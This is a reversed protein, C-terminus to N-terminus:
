PRWGLTVAAWRGPMPVGDFEVFSRDLANSVDVGLTLGLGIPREIRLDVLAYSGRSQPVRFRGAVTARLQAPLRVAATVSAEFRPHALAYRSRALDADIESRLWATGFRVQEVVGGPRAAFGFELGTTIARAHNVARDVGTDDRLYDILGRADRRFVAGDALVGGLPVTVSAEWTWARESALAPNGVTAPSRYYLDTFSPQRFSRGVHGGLVLGSATEFGIGLGPSFEWGTEGLRDGRGQLHVRWAGHHLGGEAFLALRRRDHDGLRTSDITQTEGETGAVWAVSGHQGAFEVGLSGSRTRHRNAYWDPRARDLVFFDRHQRAGARVTLRGIAVSRTASAVALATSTAERQDPFRSSYFGLAGFKKDDWGTTVATRWGGVDGAFGASARTLGFEAGPRFGTSTARGGSVWIGGPLALTAEADALHHEGIRLRVGTAAAATTIAVVGGFADPGHAASGPGLLVEVREIAAIPLPVDLSFHGTQPDNVRVGDVLVAVQEFTAGRLNVDSQIGFGGRRAVGAGAVWALLEQVDRVPLRAIDERELVIVRRPAAAELPIRAAVVRVTEHINVPAQAGAVTACTAGLLFLRLRM